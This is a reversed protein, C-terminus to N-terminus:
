PCRGRELTFENGSERFGLRRSISKIREEGSEGVLSEISCVNCRLCNEVLKTKVMSYLHQGRYEEITAGMLFCLKKDFDPSAVIYSMVEGGNVVGIDTAVVVCGQEKIIYKKEGPAVVWAVRGCESASLKCISKEIPRIILSKDIGPGFYEIM